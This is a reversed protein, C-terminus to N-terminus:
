SDRRVGRDFGSRDYVHPPVRAFGRPLDPDLEFPARAAQGIDGKALRWSVWNPIRKEANYSLAPGAM